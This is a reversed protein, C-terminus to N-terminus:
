TTMLILKFEHRSIMPEDILGHDVIDRIDKHATDEVQAEIPKSPQQKVVM